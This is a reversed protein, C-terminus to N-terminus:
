ISLLTEGTQARESTACLTFHPLQLEEQGKILWFQFESQNVTKKHIMEAQEENFTISELFEIALEKSVTPTVSVFM